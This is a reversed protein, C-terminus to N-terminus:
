LITLPTTSAIESFFLAPSPHGGLRSEPQMNLYRKCYTTKCGLVDQICEDTNKKIITENLYDAMGGWPIRQEFETNEAQIGLIYTIGAAKM